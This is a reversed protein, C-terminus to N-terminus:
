SYLPCVIGSCGALEDNSSRKCDFHADNSLMVLKQIVFGERYLKKVRVPKEEIFSDLLKTWPSLIVTTAKLFYGISILLEGSVSFYM